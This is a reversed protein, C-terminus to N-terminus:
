ILLTLKNPHCRVQKKLLGLGIHEFLLDLQIQPESFDSREPKYLFSFRAKCSIPEVVAFLVRKVRNLSALFQLVAGPLAVVEIM